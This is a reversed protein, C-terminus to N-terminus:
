IIGKGFAFFLLADFILLGGLFTLVWKSAVAFTSAAKVRISAIFQAAKDGQYQYVIPVALFPLAWIANYFLLVLIATTTSDGAYKSLQSLMALYPVAVPASLLCLFGGLKLAKSPKEPLRPGNKNRKDDLSKRSRLAIFLM